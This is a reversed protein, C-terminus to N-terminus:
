SRKSIPLPARDATGSAGDVHVTYFWLMMSAARPLSYQPPAGRGCQYVLHATFIPCLRLQYPTCAAVAQLQSGINPRVEGAAIVILIKVVSSCRFLKCRGKSWHNCRVGQSPAAPQTWAASVQLHCVVPLM